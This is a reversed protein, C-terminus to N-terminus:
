VIVNADMFAQNPVRVLAAMTGPDAQDDLYMSAMLKLSGQLRNAMMDDLKPISTHVIALWSYLFQNQFWTAPISTQISRMMVNKYGLVARVKKGQSASSSEAVVIPMGCTALVDRSQSLRTEGLMQICQLFGRAEGPNTPAVNYLMKAAFCLIMRVYEVPLMDPHRKTYSVTFTCGDHTAVTVDLLPVGAAKKLLVFVSAVLLILIIAVIAIWMMARSEKGYLKNNSLFRKLLRQM